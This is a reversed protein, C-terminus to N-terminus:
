TADTSWHWAEAPLNYLGYSAAHAQLWRFAASGRSITSGGVTFDIALGTEHKSTGPPATPPSCASAPAEYIAYDSSGCNARRVAIQEAPDRYGGGCMSIGDASAAALLDALDGAISSAVTISGGAPCGVTSLGGSAGVVSRGSPRSAARDRAAQAQADAKAQADALAQALAAQAARQQRQAIIENLKAAIETERARIADAAAPDLRAVADAESLNAAVRDQVTMVFMSEQSQAAVVDDVAAQAERAQQRATGAAEARADQEAALQSKAAELQGLVDADDDTQRDLISQKVTADLTSEATLADFVNESPPNVFADIVVKDSQDGLAAIRGKTDAVAADAADVVADAAAQDARAKALDAVETQVSAEISELVGVVSAGDSRLAAASPDVPPQAGALGDGPETPGPGPVQAGVAAPALAPAAAVLLAAVLRAAARRHSQPALPRM